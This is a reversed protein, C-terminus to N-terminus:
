FPSCTETSVCVLGGSSSRTSGPPPERRPSSGIQGPATCWGCRGAPRAASSGGLPGAGKCGFRGAGTCEVTGGPPRTRAPSGPRRPRGADAQGQHRGTSAPRHAGGAARTHGSGASGDRLSAARAPQGFIHAPGPSVPSPYPQAPRGPSCARATPEPGARRARVPARFQGPACRRYRGQRARSAHRVPQLIFGARRITPRRMQPHQPRATPVCRRACRARAIGSHRAARLHRRQPPTGGASSRPSPTPRARSHRLQLPRQRPRPRAPACARFPETGAARFQAHRGRAARPM